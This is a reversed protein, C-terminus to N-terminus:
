VNETMWDTLVRDINLTAWGDGSIKIAKIECTRETAHSITDRIQAANGNFTVMWLRANLQAWDPYTRMHTSFRNFDFNERPRIFVLFTAM